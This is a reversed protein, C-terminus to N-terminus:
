KRKRTDESGLRSALWDAIAGLTAPALAVDPLTGYGSPDGSPDPLFLHNTAPLVRVTVDGNRAARFAAALPAAQEMTVQRDTEGQLVLVPPNSMRRAVAVPDYRAFFGIWPEVVSLSDVQHMALALASDLAAGPMRGRLAYENQSQMIHRGTWAPGAMLVMARLKAGRAALRTAVLPAILGGESHGLLALRTSDIDKVTRLWGLADEIDNAFDASTSGAFRGGSAGFGRDDMRLMAIGRRALTDAIQWFPRYGKVISIAGDRDQAGSGTIAVVCPLRGPRKPWTLTGELEFGGRTPIRVTESTYPAGVPGSHDPPALKLVSESLSDARHFVVRQAPVGGSLLTGDRAIRLEFAASGMSVVVSEPNVFQLRAPITRGGAVAFVPVTDLPPTNALARRVIVELLAISPNIYPISGPRSKLRELRGPTIDALVSDGYWTMLASQTPATSLSASAPRVLSQMDRVTGGPAFAVRYDFRLAALRFVLVGSLHDGTREYRELAITDGLATVVFAGSGESARAPAWALAVFGLALLAHFSRQPSGQFCKTVAM